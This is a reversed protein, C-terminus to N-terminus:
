AGSLAAILVMAALGVGSLVAVVVCTYGMILGALALGGGGLVPDRELERRALHGCVIAPIAPFVGLFALFGSCICLVLGISALTLSAVALGSTRVAPPAPQPPAPQEHTAM